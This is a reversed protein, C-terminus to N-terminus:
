VINRYYPAFHKGLGKYREVNNPKLNDFMTMLELISTKKGNVLYYMESKNIMDIIDACDNILRNNLFITQIKSNVM